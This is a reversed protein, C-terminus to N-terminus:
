RSCNKLLLWWGNSYADWIRYCSPSIIKRWKKEHSSNEDSRKQKKSILEPILKIWMYKSACRLTYWICMLLKSLALTIACVARRAARATHEVKCANLKRCGNTVILQKALLDSSTYERTQKVNSMDAPRAGKWPFDYAFLRNNNRAWERCRNISILHNPKSNTGWM